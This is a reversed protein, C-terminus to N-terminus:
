NFFSNRYRTMSRMAAGRESITGIKNDRMEEEVFLVDLLFFPPAAAASCIGSPSIDVAKNLQM